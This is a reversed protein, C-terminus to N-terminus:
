KSVDSISYAKNATLDIRAYLTIGVINILVIAVLYVLLKIYKGYQSSAGM